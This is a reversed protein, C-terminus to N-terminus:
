LIASIRDKLDPETNRDWGERVHIIVGSRDIVFVAPVGRLKYAVAASSAARGSVLPFGLNMQEALQRVARDAEEMDNFGVCEVGRERYAEWVRQVGALADLSLRYKSNWFVVVTVSGRAPVQISENKVGVTRVEPAKSGILTAPQALVSWGHGIVLMSVALLVVSYWIVRRRMSSM